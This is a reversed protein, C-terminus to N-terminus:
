RAGSRIVRGPPRTLPPQPVPSYRRYYYTPRRYYGSGEEGLAYTTPSRPYSPVYGGGEEGLAQSTIPGSPPGHPPRTGGGEEGLAYTTVPGPPHTPPPYGGGEEGLAQTTVMGPPVSASLPQAAVGRNGKLTAYAAVGGAVLLALWGRRTQGAPKLGEPRGSLAAVSDASALSDAIAPSEPLSYTIIRHFPHCM